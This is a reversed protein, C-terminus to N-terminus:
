SWLNIFWNKFLELAKYVKKWNKNSDESPWNFHDPYLEFGEDYNSMKNEMKNIKSIEIIIIKIM